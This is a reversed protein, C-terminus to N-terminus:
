PQKSKKLYREIAKGINSVPTMERTLQQGDVVQDYSLSKMIQDRANRSQKEDLASLNYLAYAVVLNQRVRMGKEFRLGLYYQAFADGKEAAIFNEKVSNNDRKEQSIALKETWEKAKSANQSVYRGETYLQILKLQAEEYDQEASKTIWSIAQPYDQPVGRGDLYFIGLNYQSRANGLLAAKRLTKATNLDDKDPTDGQSVSVLVPKEPDTIDYVDAQAIAAAFLALAAILYKQM